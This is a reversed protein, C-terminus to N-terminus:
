SIEVGLANFSLNANGAYCRLVDTADLTIGITAVFTDNAAIPIDYYLYQKVADAAGAVALSIRFVTATGGRNCIVVSSVAAKKGGPVTYLPTLTAAGPAQQGLVKMEEAM